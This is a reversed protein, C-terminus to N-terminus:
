NHAMTTIFHLTAHFATISVVFCCCHGYRDVISAISLFMFRFDLLDIIKLTSVKTRAITKSKSFLVATERGARLHNTRM